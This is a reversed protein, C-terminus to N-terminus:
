QRRPGLCVVGWKETAFYAHSGAWILPTVVNGALSTRLRAWLAPEQAQERWMMLSEALFVVRDGALLPPVGKHVKPIRALEKGDKVSFVVLEGAETVAALRGPGAALAAAVRGRISTWLRSGDVVSHLAVGRPLPLVISRALRLPGFLPPEDLAVRWLTRGTEDDLALLAKETAVVLIGDRPEAPALTGPGLDSSWQPKPADAQPVAKQRM